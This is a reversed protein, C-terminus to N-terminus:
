NDNDFPENLKETGALVFRGNEIITLKEGDHTYASIDLIEEYPITIDTHCGFYAKEKDTHRLISCENDRAVIAKGDPNYTMSDEEFSYCTDGVAFHPGMKEVILIPLKYVIDYKKGIVYATTNTGIAFEGIPLTDHNYMLNEKIFSKNEEDSDFNKCTYDTIKGDKFTICLDTYKLDRLYVESVHLVGDTGTLKPSTFVEGVPVNVDALCNEFLTEHLPDNLTHLMVKIDTKNDGNGKVHVYEAKDLTSIIDTQIQRYLGEDLTNIKITDAFIEEFNDGIEPIPYAIITFSTEDGKIYEHYLQTWNNSFVAQLKQQKEDLKIVEKKPVPSFPREGFTEISIPGAMVKALDNYKEFAVRAVSLKRDAYAKDLILGQDFKHDFIYQKNVPTTRIGAERIVVDLGQEKLQSIVRRVMREFGIPYYINVNKKKSLDKKGLVFGRVFAETCTSAMDEIEKDTRTNLFKAIGIENESINHGYSYLYRLDELDSNMVIDKYFTLSGDVISRVQYEMFLDQYDSEFWYVADKVAQESLEESEFLNYIEVFLEFMVTIEEIKLQLAYGFTKRLRATMECIYKGFVEGCTKVAYAPNAYSTEYNEPRIIEFNKDNIAKLEEFSLKEYAGSDVLKLTECVFELYEATKIFFDRYGEAVTTENKINSIRETVLLFREKLEENVERNLEM